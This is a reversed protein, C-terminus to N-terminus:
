EEDGGDSPVVSVSPDRHGGSEKPSVQQDGEARVEGREGM